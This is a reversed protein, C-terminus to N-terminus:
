PSSGMGGWLRVKVSRPAASSQNPQNPTWPPLATADPERAVLAKTTVWIEVAAAAREHIIASHTYRPLGVTRPTAEPATAPSTAMVGADPKTPGTDAIRMPSAAPPELMLHQKQMPKNTRSSM